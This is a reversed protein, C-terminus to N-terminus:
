RRMSSSRKKCATRDLLGGGVHTDADGVGLHQLVPRQSQRGLLGFLILWSRACTQAPIDVVQQPPPPWATEARRSRLRASGCPSRCAPPAVPRRRGAVLTGRRDGAAGPPASSRCVAVVAGLRVRGATLHNDSRGGRRGRRHGRHRHVPEDDALLGGFVRRAPCERGSVPAPLPHRGTGIHRVAHHMREIEARDDSENAADVALGLRHRPHARMLPAPQPEVSGVVPQAAWAVRRRERRGALHEGVLQRDGRLRQRAAPERASPTM